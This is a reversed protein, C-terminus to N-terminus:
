KSNKKSSCLGKMIRKIKNEMRVDNKPLAIILKSKKKIYFTRGLWINVPANKQFVVWSLPIKLILYHRNIYKYLLNFVTEEIASKAKDREPTDELAYTKLVFSLNIEFQLLFLTSRDFLCGQHQYNEEVKEIQSFNLEEDSNSNDKPRIFFNPMITYGHSQPDYYSDAVSKDMQEYVNRGNSRDRVMQIINQAYDFQKAKSIDDIDSAMDYYKSDAIYYVKSESDILSKGLFIHDIQRNDAHKKLSMLNPDSILYDIMDEFVLNFDTALLYEDQYNSSGLLVQQDQSDPSLEQHFAYLLKWLECMKDSFYQQRIGNLRGLIMDNDVLVEFESERLLQYYPSTPMNLGYHSQVYRMTSFYLVMLEEQDHVYRKENCVETYAVQKNNRIIPVKKRVTKSWNIRNFGRHVEKYIMLILSRNREFFNRLAIIHDLLTTSHEDIKSTVIVDSVIDKAVRTKMIRNRYRDIAGYTWLSLDTAKKKDQIAKFHLYDGVLGQSSFISKFSKPLIFVMEGKHRFYGVCRLIDYKLYKSINPFANKVVEHQSYNTGEFLIM